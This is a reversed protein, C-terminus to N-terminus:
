RRGPAADAEDEEEAKGEGAFLSELVERWESRRPLSGRYRVLWVATPVTIALVILGISIFRATWSSTLSEGFYVAIATPIIAGGMAALIFRWYKMSTLGAAYSAWDFSVLPVMRAWFVLMPGMSESLRDIREAVTEGVMRPLFRRGFRRSIFFVSTAGAFQGLMSYLTGLPTGWALGAAIMFPLNPIPSIIMAVALSVIVLGPGWPGLDRIWEGVDDAGIEGVVEGIGYWSFGAVVVLGALVRRRVRRRALWPRADPERKVEGLAWLDAESKVLSGLIWGELLGLLPSGLVRDCLVYIAAGVGVGLFLSFRGALARM